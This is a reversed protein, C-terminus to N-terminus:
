QRCNSLTPRNHTHPPLTLAIEAPWRARIRYSLSSMHVVCRPDAVWLSLPKTEGFCALLVTRRTNLCQESAPIFRCNSPEYNGNVNIRDITLGPEYGVALAWARFAPFDNMWERCIDIGRGGYGPYREIRPNTCRARMHLWTNYLPTSAGGHRYGRAALQERHLCGCSTSNGSLLNRKAVELQTGCDCHVLCRIISYGHMDSRHIHAMVTLRGFREGISVPRRETM